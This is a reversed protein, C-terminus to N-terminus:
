AGDQRARAMEVALPAVDVGLVEFGNEALWLSNTGTGCGVELTRGQRVRGSEVFTTLLPDPRGTDWPLFGEAYSDNWDPHAM